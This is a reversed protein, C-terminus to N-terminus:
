RYEKTKDCMCGYDKHYGALVYPLCEEMCRDTNNIMETTIDPNKESDLADYEKSIEPNLSDEPESESKGESISEASSPQNPTTKDNKTNEAFLVVSLLLILISIRIMNM